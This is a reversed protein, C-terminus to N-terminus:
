RLTTPAGTRIVRGGSPGAGPGMELVRHATEAAVPDHEALVVTHGAAALAHLQRVLRHTDAPHLGTTPEDFLYLTPERRRVRLETALKIRQAEGGSLETAPHGLRLYGLGLDALAQVTRRVTPEETFVERAEDVTLALVEAITLGQWRVELTEEDYRTGHCTPCLSYTGPMFLLEVSVSGQGECTPCRGPTTNFSFRGAGFGRTKAQETAAFLSRIRDFAGTYTALTSRPSRGIPKQTIRVLRGPVAGGPSGGAVTVTAPTGGDPPDLRGPLEEGEEDGTGEAETTVEQAHARVAAAIGDLLSSKGSGSVGTVVTVAALPFDVDAGQVNHRHIGRVQLLGSAGPTPRVAPPGDPFVEEPHVPREVYRGTVSDEVGALGDVPGSFLVRGGDQGAWPGVDVVWDCAAVVGMDHEVVLVTNGAEVLRRLVRVLAETDRPHLGASPEDLVYLVGFLGAHLLTALRIRQLEGPSVTTSGRGLALHGLGLEVLVELRATLDTLLNLEAAERATPETAAGAIPEGSTGEGPAGSRTRRTAEALEGTRRTTLELLEDIPLDLLDTIGQGQWRVAQADPRLGAGGCTGCPHAEVFRLARARQTASRTEALTRLLYRRASSFQGQYPRQIRGAEREPVVEVTPQEDTLLIWDRDAQPLSEWPAHVDYGLTATIDRYNKGQWAGPWAAIAGEAISLSPDPVMSAETPEHVVGLGSCDPCAGVATNTSFADSDLHETGAPYEGCRSLLMRLISGTQSVTAVTSRSSVGSTTAQQGLAVAPPLGHVAGVQPDLAGHLLRRAFPAVTELYRRQAEAHITGFALSSKGSGSVGTVAVLRNRPISVSVGQLNHLHAGTVTLHTEPSPVPPAASTM